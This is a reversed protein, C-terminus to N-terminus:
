STGGDLDSRAGLEHNRAAPPERRLERAGALGGRRGHRHGHRPDPTRPGVPRPGLRARPVDDCGGAPSRRSATSGASRARSRRSWRRACRTPPTSSAARPTPRSRCRPIAGRSRGGDRDALREQVPKMLESHFAAGVQLRVVKEAGAEGALAMLREVAPVEGSVVIQVPTNLNAPAVSGAASAEECLEACASPRCPRDGGGDRGTAGGPDRGDATRAHERAAHRGRALARRRRRRGHVRRPQPRRRRRAASGAERAVEHVALSLAFLAPQAANTETLSELPGELSLARIPLGSAEDACDLYRDYVDPRAAALDAGM